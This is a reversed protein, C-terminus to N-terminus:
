ELVGTQLLVAIIVGVVQLMLLLILFRGVKDVRKATAAATAQQKVAGLHNEHSYLSVASDVQSLQGFLAIIDKQQPELKDDIIKRLSDRVRSVDQLAAKVDKKLIELSQVAVEAQAKDQRSADSFATVTKQLDAIRSQMKLLQLNNQTNGLSVPVGALMSSPLTLPLTDTIIVVEELSEDNLKSPPTPEPDVQKIKKGRAAARVKELTSVKPAKEQPVETVRKPAAPKATKEVKDAKVQANFKSSQNAFSVALEETAFRGATEWKGERKIRLRWKKSEKDFNLNYNDPVNFNKKTFKM